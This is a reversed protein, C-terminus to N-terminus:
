KLILVQIPTLPPPKINLTAIGSLNCTLEFLFILKLTSKEIIFTKPIFDKVNYVGM